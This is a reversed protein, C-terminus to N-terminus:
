YTAINTIYRIDDSLSFIRHPPLNELGLVRGQGAPLCAPLRVTLSRVFIIQVKHHNVDSKSILAVVTCIIPRKKDPKGGGSTPISPRFWLRGWCLLHSGRFSESSCLDESLARKWWCLPSYHSSVSLIRSMNVPVEDESVTVNLVYDWQIRSVPQNEKHM